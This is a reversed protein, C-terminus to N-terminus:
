MRRLDKMLPGVAKQVAKDIPEVATDAPVVIDTLRDLDRTFVNYNGTAHNDILAQIADAFMSDMDALDREDLHIPGIGDDEDADPEAQDGPDEDEPQDDADPHQDDAQDLDDDEDDEIAAGDFAEEWNNLQSDIKIQAKLYRRFDTDTR